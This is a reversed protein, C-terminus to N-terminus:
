HIQAASLLVRDGEIPSVALIQEARRLAQRADVPRDLISLSRGLWAAAEGASRNTADFSRWFADAQQLLTLAARADERQLLLRARGVLLEAHAPTMHQKQVDSFLEDARSFHTDAAEFERLELAVWGAEAQAHALDGRHGRHVSAAEVAKLLWPRSEEYKRQLRLVTGLNRMALQRARAGVNGEHDLVQHLQTEAESFRGLYGLALGLSSRAHLAELDAGAMTALRIAERLQTIAEETRRAALLAAGLKRVRGTHAVSGPEAQKLYIEVARRADAIAGDLDGREIDTPVTASLAEGVSRSDPGFVTAAREATAHFLASSADFDGVVGLAQAYYLSSEMVRPHALDQRHLDLMLRYADRAPTVAEERRQTLTYVHSLQQLGTAVEASKRGLSLSAADIAELASKEALAYDAFVIGLAAQQLKARAFLPTSENRAQKLTALAHNLSALSDDNRGLYEYSQSLALRLRADMMPDHSDAGAQLQVAQELVRAADQHQQLGFLSEGIIALLELRLYPDADARENLRREAQALLEPASVVKGQEQTPDAERFVAAIFDKVEDARAKEMRVARSQWLVLAAGVLIALSIGSVAGVALKNRAAFKQVRYWTSDPRALVPRGSLHRDIDEVLTHVTAYREEPKKKLAKLLITDLDGRLSKRWPGTAVDSPCAPEARLIAEELAGRSDRKLRYPRTGTLLEYLIVGLSYVDSAVSLPEGLIQEPSAYDPTLARGSLQTLRSENVQGEDMLRAIGFDLLRVQGEATVLINGPKLDRHVVLKGHAYAVASAVQSFLQLRATLGLNEEQCYLDIPRGEVYELALFSQGDDTLGADYLRAINPHTLTALIQRERVMREALGVGRWTAHPLKLAVPRDIMGDLRQALWVTAMGGSGLERLLRYPGVVTDSDLSRLAADSGGAPLPIQPLVALFDDAELQVASQLLQRLRPLIAAHTPALQLLWDDRQQAPLSLAEDLLRNISASEDPSTDSPM